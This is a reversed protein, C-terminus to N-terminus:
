RALLVGGRADDAVEGIREALREAAARLSQLEAPELPLEVIERLGRPGLRVPLGVRTDRLGYQGTPAVACALVDDASPQVMAIAMRAASQGPAFYASGTKLLSVVEAGSDRTRDVIGQLTAADLLDRLPRGGVSAQSLPVVMEPGHSGLAHAQVDQPRCIGTLAVLSCFRASDLVGAMGLVRESPFGTRIFALHTMEELPNTVMIVVSDPALEAIRDAVPGVIAANAATLDTRTMGPTRARGATMIVYDVGAIQALDTSGRITTGFRALGASHWLDLAIGAALGDVVDILVVEAFLDSEALRLTTISGVHGAGIVAVRPRDATRGTGGAPRGPGVPGGPRLAGGLPAGRRYLSNATGPTVSRPARAADLGARPNLGTAPSATERRRDAPRRASSTAPAAPGAAVAPAAGVGSGAGRIIRVRLERARELALPTLLDGKAVTLDAQDRHAREVLDAGIVSV